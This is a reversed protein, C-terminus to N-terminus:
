MICMILRLINWVSFRRREVLAFVREHSSHNGRGEAVGYDKVKRSSAIGLSELPRKVDDDNRRGMSSMLFVRRALVDHIRNKSSAAERSTLFGRSCLGWLNGLFFSNTPFVCVDCATSSGEVGPTEVSRVILRTSSPGPRSQLCPM